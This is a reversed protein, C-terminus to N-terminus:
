TQCLCQSCPPLLGVQILQPALNATSPCTEAFTAQGCLAGCIPKAEKYEEKLPLAAAAATCVFLKLGQASVHM